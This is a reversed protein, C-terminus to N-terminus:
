QIKVFKYWYREYKKKAWEEDIVDDKDEEACYKVFLACARMQEPNFLSFREKFYKSMTPDNSNNDLSYLVFDGIETEGFFKLIWVMYAPLYFRMGVSDFYSLASTCKELHTNPVDNWRGIFDKKHHIMDHEDDWDDHAQAVHLTIKHPQQVGDFATEIIKILDTTTM